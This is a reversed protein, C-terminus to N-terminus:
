RGGFHIVNGFPDMEYGRRAEDKSIKRYHRDRVWPRDDVGRVGCCPTTWVSCDAFRATVQAYGLDYVCRCHMCRVPFMMDEVAPQKIKWEPTPM